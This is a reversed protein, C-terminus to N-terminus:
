GDGDMSGPRIGPDAVGVRVPVGGGVPARHTAARRWGVAVRQHKARSAGGARGQVVIDGPQVKPTANELDKATVLEWRKKPIKLVVGNGFFRDVPIAALDAARQVLHLPANMHTGTHMVTTIKYAQVGHQAHKVSRFMKVDEQGPMSPVGHGWLHSLEVMQLGSYPDTVMTM